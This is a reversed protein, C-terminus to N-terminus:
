AESRWFSYFKVKNSSQKFIDVFFADRFVVNIRMISRIGFTPQASLSGMVEHALRTDYDEVADIYILDGRFYVSFVHRVSNSTNIEEWRESSLDLFSKMVRGTRRKCTIQVLRLVKDIWRASKMNECHPLNIAITYDIHSYKCIASLSSYYSKYINIHTSHTLMFVRQFNQYLFVM